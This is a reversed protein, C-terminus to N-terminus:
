VEGGDHDAEAVGAIGGSERRRRRGGGDVDDANGSGAAARGFEELLGFHFVDLKAEGHLLAGQGHSAAAAWQVDSEEEEVVRHCLCWSHGGHCMYSSACSRSTFVEVEGGIREM